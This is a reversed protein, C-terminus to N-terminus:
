LSGEEQQRLAAWRARKEELAARSEEDERMAILEWDMEGLAAIVEDLKQYPISILHLGAPYVKRRKMGHHLGTICFNVKGSLYPYAYLWACSMISSSKSEWLDGTVYSTARMLIEAQEPEAVCIVLDPRFDCLAVPCFEVYRIAGPSVVPYSNHVRTNAAPTRFVGYDQGIVGSTTFGDRPAMGLPYKGCCNDDQATIYFRRGEDQAKRVFQCFSLTEDTRPAAEPRAYSFRVAIAPYPMGLKEFLSKANEDM